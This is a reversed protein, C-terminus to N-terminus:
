YVAKHEGLRGESGQSWCKTMGERCGRSEERRTEKDDSIVKYLM